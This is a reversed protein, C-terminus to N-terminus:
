GLDPYLHAYPLAMLPDTTLLRLYVSRALAGPDPPPTPTQDIGDDADPDPYRRGFSTPRGDHWRELHVRAGRRHKRPRTEM